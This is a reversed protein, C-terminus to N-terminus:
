KLSCQKKMFRQGYKLMILYQKEMILLGNEILRPIIIKSLQSDSMLSLYQDNMWKLKNEDFIASKKSIGSLSFLSILEEITIIERDGGPSWGLLALYNLVAESTYGINKYELISAAGTRKSLRKKDQGLILPVHVFEPMGWELANYLMIQKPTNSLHDDGRIVTTINMMGDDVVVALHYTPNGDSKLIIFDEIENNKFTLSGHVIDEFSTEGDGVKLRVVKNTNKSELYKQEELTLNRCHRNYRYDGKHKIAFDKQQALEESSCYCYYAKGTDVLKKTIQQYIEKRNSQFIVQEDWDLGLWQLEDLIYKVLENKSRDRDTDEIRVLFKGNYHRAYLWNFIATRAGGVHLFGTPSPAFRVRIKKMGSM